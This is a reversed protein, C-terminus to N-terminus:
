IAGRGNLFEGMAQDAHNIHEMLWDKITHMVLLENGKAMQAHLHQLEEILTHHMHRHADIDPYDHAAMYSEEFVFHKQTAAVLADFRTLCASADNGEMWSKHLENVQQVLARHQADIEAIGLQHLQDTVILPADKLRGGDFLRYTNKGAQKSMYMAQDSASLLGDMTNAHLPFISIGVSLGVCSEMGNHHSMKMEFAQVLKEAVVAAHNPSELNCLIIAFEDGGFRVVTDSERVCALLRQASMKLVEDGAEHGLQDNVQKFGDLDAFLLAVYSSDRKAQSLAHSFRDFFLTRNPLGTLKDHYALYSIKHEMKKRDDIDLNVGIMKRPRGQADFDVCKGRGQIWRHHGDKTRMRFEAIFNEQHQSLEEQLTAMVQERDDPHIHALWEQQSAPFEDAQYGLMTYYQPSFKAAGSEMDWEWVSEQAGELAMQLMLLNNETEIKALKSETIDLLTGIIKYPTGAEDCIQMACCNVWRVESASRRLRIERECISKGQRLEALSNIFHDLDEEHVHQSLFDVPNIGEKPYPVDLIRMAEDSCHLTDTSLLWHWSGLHAIREAQRLLEDQEKFKLANAKHEAQQRARDLAHRVADPLRGLRDKLVFDIAGDQLLQVVKEDGLAGTVIIVPTDPYYTKTYRLASGGDYTPLSFDALVIDPAFERLALHFGSETDELRSSFTLGARKLTHEILEADSANDELLLIKTM